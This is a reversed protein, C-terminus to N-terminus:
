ETVPINITVSGSTQTVNVPIGGFVSDNIYPDYGASYLFYRGCRMGNIHAHGISHGSDGTTVTFDYLNPDIGPFETANYKIYVNAGPVLLDHHRVYFALEVEGGPGALCAPPTPDDKDKKCSSASLLVVSLCFVIVPWLRTKKM